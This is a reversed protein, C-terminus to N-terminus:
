IFQSQMIAANRNLLKAHLHHVVDYASSELAQTIHKFKQLLKIMFREVEAESHTYTYTKYLKFIYWYVM